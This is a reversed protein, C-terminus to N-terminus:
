EYVNRENRALDAGKEWLTAMSQVCNQLTDINTKDDVLCDSSSLLLDGDQISTLKNILDKKLEHFELYKNEM